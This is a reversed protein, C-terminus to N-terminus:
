EKKENQDGPTATTLQTKNELCIEMRIFHTYMM